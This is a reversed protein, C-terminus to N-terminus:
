RAPCHLHRSSRRSWPITWERMAVSRPHRPRPSHRMPECGHGVLGLHHGDVDEPQEHRDDVARHDVDGQRGHRLVEAHRGGVDLPDRDAVEEGKGRHNRGGTPEAIAEARFPHEHHREDREDDRRQGATERLCEVLENEETDQLAHTGPQDRRDARGHQIPGKGHLVPGLRRDPHQAHGDDSRRDARHEPPDEDIPCRPVPDEQDVSRDARDRDQQRDDPEVLGAM